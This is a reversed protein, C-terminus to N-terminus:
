QSRPPPELTSTGVSPAARTEEADHESDSEKYVALLDELAVSGAAMPLEAGPSQSQDGRTFKMCRLQRLRDARFSATPAEMDVTLAVIDDRPRIEVGPRLSRMGEAVHTNKQYWRASVEIGTKKEKPPMVSIM